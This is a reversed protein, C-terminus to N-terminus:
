GGGSGLLGGTDARMRPFYLERRVLQVGCFMGVVRGWGGGSCCFKGTDAANHADLTGTVGAPVGDEDLPLGAMHRMTASTLAGLARMSEATKMRVKRGPQTQLNSPPVHPPMLPRATPTLTLEKWGRGLLHASSGGAQGCREHQARWAMGSGSAGAAWEGATVPFVFTSCLAAVGIGLAIQLWWYFLAKYEVQPPLCLPLPATSAPSQSSRRVTLCAEIMVSM